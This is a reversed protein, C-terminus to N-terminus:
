LVSRSGSRPPWRAIVGREASKIVTQTFHNIAAYEAFFRDLVAGLLFAGSGEFAKEEVTVTIELGRAAGVGAKQQLRRVVPRSEIGRVGRIRRDTAADGLDAFMSLIERLARGDPESIGLHNLALLNIVRWAVPGMGLHLSPDHKVATLADRPRTPPIAAVVDLATDERFRFDAGGQGVPLHEALHRNSCMARVSLELMGGEDQGASPPTVSVFVDTGIYDTSAQFKRESSSRKSPLRRSTYAVTDAASPSGLEARYLPPIARKDARGPYHLFVQTIRHIEFNLYQSRDPVVHYEYSRTDLQIRDTNKKFLNVAPAAYLAFMKLNVAAALRPVTQDFTFVVDVSKTTIKALHRALGNLKFGLFKRPFTFYEQILDFGKFVRAEYPFIAEDEGFGAQEVCDAGLSIFQPDGFSDLHRLYVGNLHAFLQEYLAVGDAEPGVLHVPLSAMAVGAIQSFPDKKAAEDDPEDEARAATRLTLTLRLGAEVDRGINLRLAQLPGPAPHYEARTLEFPWFTVDGCLTFRCSVNREKERYVADLSAGKPVSQGSSLAPDGFVPRVQALMISPIPALYNPLLQELLNFTFEPFEHKLKLQVRAALLATGELLGIIMPDARERALGGLREAIGPYEDAFDKAYEYLLALESNYHELLERHM